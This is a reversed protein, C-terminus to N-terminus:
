DEPVPVNIIIPLQSRDAGGAVQTAIVQGDYLVREANNLVGLNIGKKEIILTHQSEDGYIAPCSFLGKFIYNERLREITPVSMGGSDMMWIFGQEPVVRLYLKADVSKQCKEGNVWMEFTYHSDDLKWCKESGLPPTLPLKDTLNNGNRDVFRVQIHNANRPLSDYVREKKEDCATLLVAVASLMLFIMTKM